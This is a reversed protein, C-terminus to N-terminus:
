VLPEKLSTLHARSTEAARAAVKAAIADVLAAHGDHDSSADAQGQLKLKEVMAMRSRPVFCDFMELLVDNDSAAVISRHFAIDADVHTEIGDHITGRANLTQRM